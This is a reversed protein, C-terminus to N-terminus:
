LLVKLIYTFLLAVLLFAWIIVILLDRTIEEEPFIRM